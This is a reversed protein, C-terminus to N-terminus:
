NHLVNNKYTASSTGQAQYRKLLYIKWGKSSWIEQRWFVLELDVHYSFTRQCSAWERLTGMYREFMKLNLIQCEQSSNFVIIELRHFSMWTISKKTNEQTGLTVLSATYGKTWLGDFVKGRQEFCWSPSELGRIGKDETQKGGKGLFGNNYQQWFFFQLHHNQFSCKKPFQSKCWKLELLGKRLNHGESM